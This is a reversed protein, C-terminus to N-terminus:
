FLQRKLSNCERKQMNFRETEIKLKGELTDITESMLSSMEQNKKTQSKLQSQRLREIEEENSKIQAELCEM